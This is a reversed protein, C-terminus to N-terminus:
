VLINANTATEDLTATEDRGVALEFHESVFPDSEALEHLEDLTKDEFSTTMIRMLLTEKESPAVEIEEFSFPAFNPEDLEAFMWGDANLRPETPDIEEVPEAVPTTQEPETTETTPQTDPKSPKEVCATCLSLVMMACIFLALTKHKKGHM